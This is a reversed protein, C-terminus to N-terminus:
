YVVLPLHDEQLNTKVRLIYHGSRYSEVPLSFIGNGVEYSSYAGIQQGRINFITVEIYELDRRGFNLTVKDHAPNPYVNPIVRIYARRLLSDASIGDNVSLQVSYNGYSDYTVDVPGSGSFSYPNGGFFTWRWSEPEGISRDSFTIRSGISVVTTDASFNAALISGYGFGELAVAGTNAPDLWPSLWTEATSGNDEWHVSFKGYYDPALPESCSAAGGTLTGVLNGAQNFLASGSSGGETVGHGNETAVWNVKWYNGDPNVSGSGFVTSVLPANFTSIKKIDGQPHHIGAGSVAGTGSRDWGSFWPNYDYPLQSSLQLLRFDSGNSTGDPAQSILTSGTITRSPPDTDPDDCTAAEYNFYFIWQAFDSSTANPGCHRATLFYPTSDQRTNNVLTGTCYYSSGGDKLLIKAVSRKQNQWNAGEPCNVNVECPGSQGDLEGPYLRYVYHVQDIVIVPDKALGAPANYEIVVEDGRIMETAFVGGSPNNRATFAGILSSADPSYIFLEGGEPIRFDSYYLILGLAKESHIGLRILKEGTISESTGDRALDIDVDIAEGIRLPVPGEESTQERAIISEIDPPALVIRSYSGKGQGPGAPFGGASIQSIAWVPLLLLLILLYKMM